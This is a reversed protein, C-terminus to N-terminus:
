LVVLEDVASGVVVVTIVCIFSVVAARVVAVVETSFTEDVVIVIVSDLEVDEIGEVVSDFM